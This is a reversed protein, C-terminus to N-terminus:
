GGGGRGVNLYCVVALDHSHVIGWRLQAHEDASQVVSRSDPKTGDTTCARENSRMTVDGNRKQDEDQVGRDMNRGVHLTRPIGVPRKLVLSDLVEVVDCANEAERGFVEDSVEAAQGDSVEELGPWVSELPVVLEDFARHFCREDVVEGVWVDVREVDEVEGALGVHADDDGGREVEEREVGEGVEEATVVRLEEDRVGGARGGGEGRAVKGIVCEHELVANGSHEVEDALATACALRAVGADCDAANSRALHCERAEARAERARPDDAGTRQM